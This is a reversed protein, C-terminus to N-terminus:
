ENVGGVEKVIDIAEYLTSGVITREEYDTWVEEAVREVEKELREVIKQMPKRTNWKEIADEKSTRSTLTLGCGKCRVIYSHHECFFCDSGESVTHLEDYDADADCCPCGLLESKQM